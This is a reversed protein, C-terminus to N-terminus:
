NDKIRVLTHTSSPLKATRAPALKPWNKGVRLSPSSYAAGKLVRDGPLGALIGLVRYSM